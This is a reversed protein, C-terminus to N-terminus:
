RSVVSLAGVCMEDTTGEGWTMYRPPLPQGDPGPITGANDYVCTVRVVDGSAIPVAERFWYQGQWEFAWRPIDLLTKEEATEPNLSITISSGRLHMHGTVGLVLSDDDITRDCSMAQASGDGVDSTLYEDIRTNCLFHILDAALRLESHELAYERNCPDDPDTPYAGACRVEVPAALPVEEIPKLDATPSALFLEVRSADSVDDSGRHVHYHVQMVLQSGAKLLKGTGVPFDTGEGGPVWFGLLGLGGVNTGLGPGGFCTWGPGTQAADQARAGEAAGAGIVFILAHHVLESRDTSVQYGTVFSDGTLEPDLLFCRYDDGLSQDPRYPPDMVLTLDPHRGDVDGVSNGQSGSLDVAPAGAEAWNVLIALDEASLKRENTMPPSEPGPPWPPMVGDKTVQAIARAMTASVRPDDLAFPGVGGESHCGTCNESLVRAVEGDGPAGEGGGCAVLAMLAVVVVALVV